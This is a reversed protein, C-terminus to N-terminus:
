SMVEYLRWTGPVGKLEHEGRDEFHLGSGAVLPPIAGSTFVERAGALDCVRKAISVALGVVDGPRVEVEGVHLGARVDIGMRRAHTVIDGAARVGRTTADFTALFGDGTTKVEHGRYRQLTARVMADHDDILSTWKRHGMRASQETSSVIDTFLITATVVDGEPAQRAGTLFEEIEDVLADTDGVFFLHDEGPLEVYKAGPIHDAMYRGAEVPIFRDADRHLVLTPVRLTPLLERVDMTLGQWSMAAMQDPPIGLRQMRAFRERFLPDAARSPALLDLMAGTGWNQPFAALVRDLTSESPGDPYDPARMYRAFADILVLSRVRDPHSHAYTIASMGSGSPGVLAVKECQCVDIVASFDQDGKGEALREPWYGGSAGYGRSTFWITRSFGALRRVLHVFSPEDWLLDFDHPGGTWWVQDLPGEGVVHYALSVGDPANVYRTEPREDV